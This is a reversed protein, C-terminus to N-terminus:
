RNRHGVKGAGNAESGQSKRMTLIFLRVASIVKM